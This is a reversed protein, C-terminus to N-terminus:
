NPEELQVASVKVKELWADLDARKTLKKTATVRYFTWPPPHERMLSYVQSLSIGLYKAVDKPELWELDKQEM